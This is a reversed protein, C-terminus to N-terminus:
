HIESTGQSISLVSNETSVVCDCLVLIYARVLAVLSKYNKQEFCYPVALESAHTEVKNNYNEKKLYTGRQM